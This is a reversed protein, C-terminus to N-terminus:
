KIVERISIVEGPELDPGAYVILKGFNDSKLMWERSSVKKIELTQNLLLKEIRNLFSIISNRDQNMNLILGLLLELDTARVYDEEYDSPYQGENKKFIKLNCSEIKPYKSNM